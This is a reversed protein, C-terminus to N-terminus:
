KTRRKTRPQPSKRPPLTATGSFLGDIFARAHALNRIVIHPDQRTKAVLMSGQWLANLFWAAEAADFDVRPKQAAKAEELLEKAFDTWDGLYGSCVGRLVPNAQALEQSMMGVVCTVPSTSDTVFGTMIDFFRHVRALPPKAPAKRAEAYAAMGFEAWAGLAAIGIEDKSKFHHFFAGKTVGARECIQDVGSASFGRELVLEQAAAVLRKRTEEPRRQKQLTRPM